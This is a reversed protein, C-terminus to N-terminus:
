RFYARYSCSWLPSPWCFAMRFPTMTSHKTTRRAHPMPETECLNPKLKFDDDSALMSVWLKKGGGLLPLAHVTSSTGVQMARDVLMATFESYVIVVAPLTLAKICCMIFGIFLWFLEGYTSFRFLQWFSIPPTPELGPAVPIEEVSKEDSTTISAEDRDRDMVTVSLPVILRAMLIWCAM